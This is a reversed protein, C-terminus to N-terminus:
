FSIVKMTNTTGTRWLPLGLTMVVKDGAELPHRERLLAEVAEVMEDSSDRRDVLLTRVGRLLGM